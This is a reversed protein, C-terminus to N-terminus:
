ICQEVEVMIASHKRTFSLLLTEQEPTHQQQYPV